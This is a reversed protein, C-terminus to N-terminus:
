PAVFTRGRDSQVVPRPHGEDVTVALGDFAGPNVDCRTADGSARWVFFVTM